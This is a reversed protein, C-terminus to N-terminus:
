CKRVTGSLHDISEGGTTVYGRMLNATLCAHIPLIGITDGVNLKNFFSTRMSIVGHEQSVSVVRAGEIPSGWGRADLEVVLGFCKDGNADLVYDKSLHVAGGYIVVENRSTHKAVIPCALAIAVDDFGCSGFESQMVDYFVFNGPRIEDIGTFDDALSCTPTDGVSLELGPWKSTLREKLARMKATSDRHIDLIKERSGAGYSHGAHTLLGRPRLKSSVDIVDLVAEIDNVNDALMGTRHYGTDVKVFVGVEMEIGEDLARVAEVSEVLCNVRAKSALEDVRPIELLNIPFAITIDTFGADTFYDAMEVSSVAIATVGFDRFWGGVVRSQHTKFHPRLRVGPREARKVMREMNARCKAVDLLLTPRTIEM